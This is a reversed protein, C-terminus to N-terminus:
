LGAADVHHVHQQAAHLERLAKLLADLRLEGGLLALLLLVLELLRLLIRLDLDRTRPTSRM